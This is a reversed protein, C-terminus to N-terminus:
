RKMNLAITAFKSSKLIFIQPFFNFPIQFEKKKNKKCFSMMALFDSVEVM